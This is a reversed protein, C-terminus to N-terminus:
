VALLGASERRIFISDSEVREEESIGDTKFIKKKEECVFM